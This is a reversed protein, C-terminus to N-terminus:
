YWHKLQSEKINKGGKIAGLTIKKSDIRFKCFRLRAKLPYVWFYTLNNKLRRKSKEKIKIELSQENM